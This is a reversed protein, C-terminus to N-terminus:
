YVQFRRQEFLWVGDQKRYRDVYCGGGVESEGDRTQRIELVCRGEASEDELTEILHNHIYPRPQVALSDAYLERLGAEGEFHRGLIEVRCDKTFLAVVGDVDGSAILYCYRKLLDRIAERDEIRRLRESESM